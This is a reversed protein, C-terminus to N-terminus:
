SIRELFGSWLRVLVLTACGFEKERELFQSHSKKEMWEERTPSTKIDDLLLLTKETSYLSNQQWDSTFLVTSVWLRSSSVDDLESSM